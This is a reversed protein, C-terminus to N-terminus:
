TKLAADTALAGARVSRISQTRVGHIGTRGIWYRFRAPRFSVIGDSCVTM